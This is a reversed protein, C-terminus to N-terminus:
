KAVFPEVIVAFSALAKAVSAKLAPHADLYASVGAGSRYYLKVLAKGAPSKALVDDRFVRLTDLQPSASGLAASAPCTSGDTECAAHCTMCTDNGAAKHENVWKCPLNAHCAGCSSTPVNQEADHCKSCDNGASTSHANHWDSGSTYDTHCQQCSQAGGVFEYGSVPAAGCVLIMLVALIVRNKVKM